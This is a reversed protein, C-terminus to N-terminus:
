VREVFRVGESRTAWEVLDSERYLVRRGDRFWRPGVGSMRLKELRSTSSRLFHAAEAPTRFPSVSAPLNAVLEPM